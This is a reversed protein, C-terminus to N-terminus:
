IEIEQRKPTSYDYLYTNTFGTGGIEKFAQTLTKKIKNDGCFWIVSGFKLSNKYKKLNKKYNELPKCTLEMEIAISCPKGNKRRKMPIIIDPFQLIYGEGEAVACFFYSPDSLEETNLQRAKLQDKITNEISSIKDTNTRSIKIDKEDIVKLSYELGNIMFEPLKEGELLNLVQNNRAKRVNLIDIPEIIHAEMPDDPFEKNKNFDENLVDRIEESTGIMAKIYIDMKSMDHALMNFPIVEYKKRKQQLLQFLFNTPRLFEGITQQDVFILNLKKWRKIKEIPASYIDLEKYLGIIYWLPIYTFECISLLICEDIYTIEERINGCSLYLSGNERILEPVSTSILNYTNIVIQTDMNALIKVNEDSLIL